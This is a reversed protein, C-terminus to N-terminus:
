WPRSIFHFRVKEARGGENDWFPCAGHFVKRCRLNFGDTIVVDGFQLTSVGAETLIAMQLNKGAAASIAKAVAGQNLNMNDAVTNM